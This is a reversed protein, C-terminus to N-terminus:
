IGLVWLTCFHAIVFAPFLFFFLAVSFSGPVVPDATVDSVWPFGIKRNKTVTLWSFEKKKWRNETRDSNREREKGERGRRGEEGGGLGM